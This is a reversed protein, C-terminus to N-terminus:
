GDSKPKSPRDMSGPQELLVRQAAAELEKLKKEAPDTSRMANVAASKLQQPSGADKAKVVADIGGAKKFADALQDVVSRLQPETVVLRAITLARAFRARPEGAGGAFGYQTLTEYDMVATAGALAQHAPIWVQGADLVEAIADREEIRRAERRDDAREESRIRQAQRDRIAGVILTLVAGLGVGLITELM